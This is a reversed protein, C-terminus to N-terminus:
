VRRVVRSDMGERLISESSRKNKDRIEDKEV